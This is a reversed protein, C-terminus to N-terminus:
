RTSALSSLMKKAGYMRSANEGPAVNSLLRLESFPPSSIGILDLAAVSLSELETDSNFLGTHALLPDRAKM